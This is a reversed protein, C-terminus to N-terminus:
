VVPCDHDVYAVAEFALGHAKVREIMRWGLEIKTTFKCVEPVGVRKRESAMEPSFWHEPLFLKGDVWNWVMEKYFALFAEVQAMEIKGLRGNHQRGTRASKEGAKEDASEDLLLMGGEWLGATGAIQHVKQIVARAEWPSDSM